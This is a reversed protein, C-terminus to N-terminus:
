ASLESQHKIKLGLGILSECEEVRFLHSSCRCDSCGFGKVPVGRESDADAIVCETKVDSERVYISDVSVEEAKLLYDIHWHIARYSGQSTNLHRRLRADLGNMASGVYVYNGQPFTLRGLAGVDLVLDKEVRICLCYAGRSTM